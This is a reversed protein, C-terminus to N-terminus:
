LTVRSGERTVSSAGFVGCLAATVTQLRWTDILDILVSSFPLNGKAKTGEGVTGVRGAARGGGRGLERQGRM